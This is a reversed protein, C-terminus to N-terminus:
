KEKQKNKDIMKGRWKGYWQENSVKFFQRYEKRYKFFYFVAVFNKLTISAVFIMLATVFLFTWGYLFSFIDPRINSVEGFNFTWRNVISLLLLVGGYKKIVVMLSEGWDKGAPVGQYLQQKLQKASSEVLSKWLYICILLQLAFGIWGFAGVTLGVSMPLMGLVGILTVVISIMVGFLLQFAYDSKPFLNIILMFGELIIFKKIWPSLILDMQHITRITYEGLSISDVSTVYTPLAVGLMYFLGILFAVPLILIFRKLLSMSSVLDNSYRMIESKKVVKKSQEFTASLLGKNRM